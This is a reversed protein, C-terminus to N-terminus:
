RTCFPSPARGTAVFAAFAARDDPTIRAFLPALLHRLARERDALRARASAPATVLAGAIADLVHDILLLNPVTDSTFLDDDELDMAGVLRGIKAPIIIARAAALGRDLEDVVAMWAMGADRLLLEDVAPPPPEPLDDADLGAEALMDELLATADQAAEELTRPDSPIPCSELLPCRECRRDCWNFPPSLEIM